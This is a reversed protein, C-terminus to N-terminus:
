FMRRYSLEVWGDRVGRDDTAQQSGVTLYLTDAPGVDFVLSAKIAAYSWAEARGQGDGDADLARLDGVHFGLHLAPGSEGIAFLRQLRAEVRHEERRPVVAVEFGLDWFGGFTINELAAEYGTESGLRGLTAPNVGLNLEHLLSLRAVCLESCGHYEATLGAFRRDLRPAGDLSRDAGATLILNLTSAPISLRAEACASALPGVGPARGRDVLDSAASAWATVDTNRGVEEWLGAAAPAAAALLFALPARAM